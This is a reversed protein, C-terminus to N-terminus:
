YNLENRFSNMKNCLQGMVPPLGKTSPASVLSRRTVPHTIKTNQRKKKAVICTLHGLFASMQPWSLHLKPLSSPWSSLGLWNNGKCQKERYREGNYIIPGLLSNPFPTVQLKSSNWRSSTCNEWVLVVPKKGLAGIDPFGSSYWINSKYKCPMNQDFLNHKQKKLCSSPEMLKQSTEWSSIHRM